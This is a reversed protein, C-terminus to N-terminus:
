KAVECDHAGFILTGPKLGLAAELRRVTTISPNVREGSEIRSIVPQGVGSREALETQSLGAAERAAKLTTHRM